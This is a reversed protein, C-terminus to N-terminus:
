NFGSLLDNLFWVTINISIPIYGGFNFYDKIKRKDDKKLQQGNYRFVFDKRDQSYLPVKDMYKSYLEEITIDLDVILIKERGRDDHFIVNVKRKAQENMQQQMAQQQIMLQRMQALQQQMNQLPHTTIINIENSINQLKNRYKNFHISLNFVSKLALIGTDLIQIGLNILQEDQNNIVMPNVIPFNKQFILVTDIQHQIKDIQSKLAQITDIQIM